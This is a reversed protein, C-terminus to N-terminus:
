AALAGIILAILVVFVCVLLIALMLLGGILIAVSGAARGTTLGMTERVAIAFLVLTWIFAALTVPLVVLFGLLQWGSGLLSLFESSTSIPTVILQPVLAFGTAAWLSAFPGRGGLLYAIGYLMGAVLTWIVPAWVFNWLIGTVQMALMPGAAAGPIQSDFTFFPGINFFLLAIQAAASIAVILLILMIASVVAQREGIRRLTRTPAIVAGAVDEAFQELATNEATGTQEDHTYSHEAM